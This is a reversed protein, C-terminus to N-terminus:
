SRFLTTVAGVRGYMWFSLPITLIPWLLLYALTMWVASFWWGVLLFYLTRALFARQRTGEHLVGNDVTWQKGQPRLTIVSPLRNIIYLGLPLGILTLLCLWAFVSILGGLWWGIFLFYLVRILINPGSSPLVIIPMQQQVIVTQQLTIPAPARSALNTETLSLPGTNSPLLLPETADPSPSIIRDSPDHAQM